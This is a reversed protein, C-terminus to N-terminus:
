ALVWLKSGPAVVHAAVHLVLALVHALHPVVVLPHPPLSLHPPPPRRAIYQADYFVDL